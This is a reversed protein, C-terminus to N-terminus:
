AKAGEHTPPRPHPHQLVARVAAIARERASGAASHARSSPMWWSVRLRVGDPDARLVRLEPYPTALVGDCQAVVWPLVRRVPTMRALPVTLELDSRRPASTANGLTKETFRRGGAMALSRLLGQARRASGSVRSQNGRFDRRIGM